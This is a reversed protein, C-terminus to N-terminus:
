KQPLMDPIGYVKHATAGPLVPGIQGVAHNPFVECFVECFAEKEEDTLAQQGGGRMPASVSAMVIASDKHEDLSLVLRYPLFVYVREPCFGNFERLEKEMEGPKFVNAKAYPLLKELGRKLQFKFAEISMTQAGKMPSLIPLVM